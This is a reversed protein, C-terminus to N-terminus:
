VAKLLTQEFDYVIAEPELVWDIIAIIEHFLRLNLRKGKRSFLSFVWPTFFSTARDFIM